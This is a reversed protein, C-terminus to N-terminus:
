HLPYMTFAAIYVVWCLLFNCLFDKCFVFSIEYFVFSYVMTIFLCNNKPAPNLITMKILLLFIVVAKAMIKGEKREGKRAEGGQIREKNEKKRKGREENNKIYLL